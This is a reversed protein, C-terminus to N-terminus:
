KKYHTSRIELWWQIIIYNSAKGCNQNSVINELFIQINYIIESYQM